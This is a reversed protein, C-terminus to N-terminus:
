EAAYVVGMGGEGIVQVLHYPGIVQGEVPDSTPEQRETM